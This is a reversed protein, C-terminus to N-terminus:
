KKLDTPNLNNRTRLKGFFYGALCCPAAILILKWSTPEIDDQFLEFGYASIAVGISYIILSFSIMRSSIKKNARSAMFYIAAVILGPYLLLPLWMLPGLLACLFVADTSKAIISTGPKNVLICPVIQICLFGVVGILSHKIYTNM